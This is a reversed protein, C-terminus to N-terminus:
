KAIISKFLRKAMKTMQELADPSLTQLGRHLLIFGITFLLMKFIIGYTVIILISGFMTALMGKILNANTLTKKM